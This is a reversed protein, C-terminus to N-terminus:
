PTTSINTVLKYTTVNPDINYHQLINTDTTINYYTPTSDSQNYYTPTIDRQHQHMIILACVKTCLRKNYVSDRKIYNKTPFDHKQQHVTYSLIYQHVIKRIFIHLHLTTNSITKQRTQTTASHQIAIPDLFYNTDARTCSRIQTTLTNLSTTPSVFM